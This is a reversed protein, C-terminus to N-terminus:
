LEGRFASHQLSQFLKEFESASSATSTIQAELAKLRTAFKDQLDRPPCWFLMRKLERMHRSYGLDPIPMTQLLEGFYRANFRKSPVLVKAGDAGIVFPFDIFKVARTHDGFVIIPGSSKCLMERQDCWGAIYSQGQDVVPYAGTSLYDGRQMKESKATQDECAESFSLQEWPQHGQKPDGFMEYFIAQGLQNLRDLAQKRKRRLDDAQDLIAAIRKQEDLPPLYIETEKITGQSINPQAGGVGKGVLETAKACMAHFMYQEHAVNPDPVIHCVAQNTTAGIGLRGVRGVTAGYMAVLLAGAPVIKLSTEELAAQTVTEETSTITGERLEGSKVWPISGGYYREAKQRSPTTGSGTDCFESIKSFRLATM